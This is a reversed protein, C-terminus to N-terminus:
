TEKSRYLDRNVYKTHRQCTHVAARVVAGLGHTGKTLRKQDIYTEKSM